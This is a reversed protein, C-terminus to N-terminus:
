FLLKQIQPRLFEKFYEIFEQEGFVVKYSGDAPAVTFNSKLGNVQEIKLGKDLLEGAQSAIFKELDKSNEVGITLQEDKSWNRALELILNQFFAKDNFASQVNLSALKDSVMNTIETKLAEASQSAFLKLEAETNKKLEEMEKKASATIRDAEHRANEVINNSSSKAEAIIKEAENRGKEVGESYIKSTLEQIKDM